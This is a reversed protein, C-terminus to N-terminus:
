WMGCIKLRQVKSDGMKGLKHWGVSVLECVKGMMSWWSVWNWRFCRQSIGFFCPMWATMAHIAHRLVSGWPAPEAWFSVGEPFNLTQYNRWSSARTDALSDENWRSRAPWNNEPKDTRWKGWEAPPVAAVTFAPMAQCQFVFWAPILKSGHRWCICGAMRTLKSQTVTGSGAVRYIQSACFMFVWVRSRHQHVLLTSLFEGSEGFNGELSHHSATHRSTWKPVTGPVQAAQQESSAEPASAHNLQSGDHDQSAVQAVAILLPGVNELFCWLYGTYCPWRLM